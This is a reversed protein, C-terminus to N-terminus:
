RRRRRAARVVGILGTGLLLCSAPEPVASATGADVMFSTLGSSSGISSPVLEIGPGEPITATVPPGLSNLVTTTWPAGAMASSFVGSLVALQLQTNYNGYDVQLIDSLAGGPGQFHIVNHSYTFGPMSPSTWIGSFAILRPSGTLPDIADPVVVSFTPQAYSLGAVSFGVDFGAWSIRVSSGLDSIAISAPLAPAAFLTSTLCLLVLVRVRRM